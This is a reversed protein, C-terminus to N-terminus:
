KNFNKSHFILMDKLIEYLYQDHTAPNGDYGNYTEYDVSYNFPPNQITTVWSTTMNYFGYRAQPTSVVKIEVGGLADSNQALLRELNNQRWREWVPLYVNGGGDFPLHFDFNRPATVLDTVLTTTLTDSFTLSSDIVAKSIEFGTNPDITVENHGYVLTDHPSFALAGGVFMRSIHWVGSTDFDKLSTADLNQEILADDFLNILGTSGDAGDFDLPGDTTSISSYVGPSKIVTRFAGYAGMGVGGIGRKSPSEMVPLSNELYAILKNGLIEDFDGVPASSGYFTGGFVKENTICCIIMPEITGNEILEDAIQQLGHNFFYYRDGDQPPLLVLMPVSEFPGYPEPLSIDPIYIAMELLRFDNRIQYNLEPSFDHIMPAIKVDQPTRIFSDEGKVPINTGRDECGVVFLITLSLIIITIKTLKNM